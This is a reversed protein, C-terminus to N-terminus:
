NLNWRRMMATASRSNRQRNWMEFSTFNRKTKSTEKKECAVTESIQSKLEKKIVDSIWIKKPIIENSM